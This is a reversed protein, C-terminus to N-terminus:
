FINEDKGKRGMVGAHCVGGGLFAVGFERLVDAAVVVGIVDDAALEDGVTFVVLEELFELLEFFFKGVEERGFGGRLADAACGAFTEGADTVENGHEGEVLDGGAVVGGVDLFGVAFLAVAGLILIGEGFEAGEIGGDALVETAVADFVDDFGLDIADGEAEM